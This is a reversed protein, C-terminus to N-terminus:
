YEEENADDYGNIDDIIAEIDGLVGLIYQLEQESQEFDTVVGDIYAKDTDIQSKIGVVDNKITQTDNKLQQTDSKIQNMESLYQTKTSNIETIASTKATDISDLAGQKSTSILGLATTTSSEVEDIADEKTQEIQALQRQILADDYILGATVTTGDTYTLYIQGEELWAREIGKGVVNGLNYTTSDDLILILEGNTIMVNSISVGKPIGFKLVAESETGLNEVTPTATSNLSEASLGVIKGTDGVDGKEGKFAPIKLNGIYVGETEAM